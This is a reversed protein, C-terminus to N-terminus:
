GSKPERIVFTFRGKAILDGRGRRTVEAEGFAVSRGVKLARGEVVIEDGASPGALFSVNMDVTAHPAMRVAEAGRISAVVAGLAEDMLTTAVGGHMVGNPNTHKGELLLSIRVYGESWEEMKAGIMAVFPSPAHEEAQMM